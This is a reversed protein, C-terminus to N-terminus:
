VTTEHEAIAAALTRCEDERGRVFRQVLRLRGDPEPQVSAFRAALSTATM